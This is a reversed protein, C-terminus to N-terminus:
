FRFGCVVCLGAAGSIEMVCECRPCCNDERAQVIEDPRARDLFGRSPGIRAPFKDLREGSIYHIRIQESRM